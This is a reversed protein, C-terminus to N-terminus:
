TVAVVDHEPPPVTPLRMDGIVLEPPEFLEPPALLVLPEPPDLPELEPLLPELEPLALPELEPLELPELEPLELPDLEPSALAPRSAVCSAGDLLPAGLYSEVGLQVLPKALPFRDKVGAPHHCLRGRLVDECPTGPLDYEFNEQMQGRAWFARTRVRTNVGAFESIAAFPVGLASALHRVLDQFFEEGTSGATGEVIARLIDLDDPAATALSGNGGVARRSAGLPDAIFSGDLSPENNM